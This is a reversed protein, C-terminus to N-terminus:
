IRRELFDAQAHSRNAADELHGLEARNGPAHDGFAADRAAAVALRPEDAVVDHDVLALDPRQAAELVIHALDLASEFAADAEILEVVNADAVHDLDERHPAHQCGRLPPTHPAAHSTQRDAQLGRVDSM